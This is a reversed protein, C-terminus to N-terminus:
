ASWSQSADTQLASLVCSPILSWGTATTSMRTVLLVGKSQHCWKLVAMNTLETGKDSVIIKPNGGRRAIIADLERAVELEPYHHTQTQTQLM